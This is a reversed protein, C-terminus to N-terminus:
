RAPILEPSEWYYVVADKGIFDVGLARGASWCGIDAETPAVPYAKLRQGHPQGIHAGPTGNFPMERAQAPPDLNRLFSALLFGPPGYRELATGPEPPAGEEEVVSTLAGRALDLALGPRNSRNLFVPQGGVRYLGSPAYDLTEKGLPRFSKGDWLLALVGDSESDHTGNVRYAPQRDFRGLVLWLQQRENLAYFPVLRGSSAGFRAASPLEQVERQKGTKRDLRTVSSLQALYVSDGRTFASVQYSLGQIPVRASWLPEVRPQRRADYGPTRPTAPPPQTVRPRETQTRTQTRPWFTLALLAVLTVAGWPALRRILRASKEFEM